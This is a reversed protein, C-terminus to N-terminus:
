VLAQKLLANREADTLGWAQQMAAVMAKFDPDNGDFVMVKQWRLRIRPEAAALFKELDGARGITDVAIILKDPSYSVPDPHAAMHAEVDEWKPKPREDNWEIKEFSERSNDDVFGRYAAGPLLNYVAEALTM